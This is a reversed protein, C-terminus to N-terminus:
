RVPSFVSTLVTTLSFAGVTCALFLILTVIATGAMVVEGPEATRTAVTGTFPAIVSLDKRNASAEDLQARAREDGASWHHLLRSVESPAEAM